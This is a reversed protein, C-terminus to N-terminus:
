ADRVPLQMALLSGQLDPLRDGSRLDVRYRHAGDDPAAEIRLRHQGSDIRLSGEFSDIACKYLTYMRHSGEGGGTGDRDGPNSAIVSALLLEADDTDSWPKRRADYTELAPTRGERHVLFSDTGRPGTRREKREMELGGDDWESLTLRGVDGATRPLTLEAGIVATRALSRQVAGAVLEQVLVRLLDRAPGRVVSDLLRTLAHGGWHAVESDLMRQRDAADRLEYARLGFCRQATLYAHVSSRPSPAGNWPSGAPPEEGFYAHDEPGVLLRFPIRTVAAVAAPFGWLRLQHRAMPGAPLRFRTELGRSRRAAVASLLQQLAIVEFAEARALDVVVTDAKLLFPAMDVLATDVEWTSVLGSVRLSHTGPEGRHPM